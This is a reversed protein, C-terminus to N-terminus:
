FLLELYEKQLLLNVSYYSGNLIPFLLNLTYGYDLLSNIVEDQIHSIRDYILLINQIKRIILLHIIYIILKKNPEFSFFLYNHSQKRPINELLVLLFLNNNIEQLHLLSLPFHLHFFDDNGSYKFM